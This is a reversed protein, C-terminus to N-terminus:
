RAGDGLACWNGLLKWGDIAWSDPFRQVKSNGRFSSRPLNSGQFDLDVM